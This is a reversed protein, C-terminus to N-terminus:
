RTSRVTAAEDFRGLAQLAEAHFYALQGLHPRLPALLAYRDAALGTLSPQGLAVGLAHPGTAIGLLLDAADSICAADRPRVPTAALEAVAALEADGVWPERARLSAVRATRWACARPDAKVQAILAGYRRAALDHEGADAAAVAGAVVDELPARAPLVPLPPAPPPPAQVLPVIIRTPWDSPPFWLAELAAALCREAATGAPLEHDGLMRAQTGTVTGDAEITSRLEVVVGDPLGDARARALCAGFGGRQYGLVDRIQATTLEFSRVPVGLKVSPVRAHRGSARAEELTPDFAEVVVRAPAALRTARAASIPVCGTPPPAPAPAPRAPRDAPPAQDTPTFRLPVAMLAPAAVGASARTARLVDGVCDGLERWRQDPVEVSPTVVGHSDVELEVTVDGDLEPHSFRAWRYCARLGELDVLGAVEGPPRPWLERQRDAVTPGRPSAPIPIPAFEVLKIASGPRPRPKCSMPPAIQPVRPMPPLETDYLRPEDIRAPAALPTVAGCAALLVAIVLTELDRRRGAPRM